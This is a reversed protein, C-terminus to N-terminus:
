PPLFTNTKLTWVHSIWETEVSLFFNGPRFKVIIGTQFEIDEKIKLNLTLMDGLENTCLKYIVM